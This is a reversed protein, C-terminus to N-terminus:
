HDAYHEAQYSGCLCFFLQFPLALHRAWFQHYLAIFDLIERSYSKFFDNGVDCFIFHMDM